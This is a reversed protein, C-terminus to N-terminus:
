ASGRQLASSSKALYEERPAFSEGTLVGRVYDDWSLTEAFERVKEKGIPNEIFRCVARAVSESNPEALYGSVGELVVDPLSGVNTAIVPLEYGYAVALVGSQTASRYPFVAVDAASFIQPIEENPVYRLDFTVNKSIGLASALARLDEEDKALFRSFIGRKTYFFDGVVWLHTHPHRRLVDPMARLLLDLGKYRRILGFFLLVVSESSAPRSLKEEPHDRAGAFFNRLPLYLTTIKTRVGLQTLQMKETAGHVIVRGAGGFVLRTLASWCPFREHPKVNFCIYVLEANTYRRFYFNFFCFIPSHIPHIWAILIMKPQANAVARATRLWSMTNMFGLSFNAKTEGTSTKSVNDTFTKGALLPPYLQYWSILQVRHIKSLRDALHRTFQAIGGRHREATSGIIVISEM